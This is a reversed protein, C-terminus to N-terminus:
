QAIVDFPQPRHLSGHVAAEIMLLRESTQLKPTELSKKQGTQSVPSRRGTLNEGLDAAKFQSIVSQEVSYLGFWKVEDSEHEKFMRLQSVSPM